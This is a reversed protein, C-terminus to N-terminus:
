FVSYDAGLSIEVDEITIVNIATSGGTACGCFLYMQTTASPLLGTTITGTTSVTPSTQVTWTLSPTTNNWVLTFIAATGATQLAPLGATNTTQTGSGNNTVVTYNTASPAFGILAGHLSSNLANDFQNGLSSGSAFGLYLSYNSNTNTTVKFKATPNNTMTCIQQTTHFGGNNHTGNSTTITMAPRNNIFTSGTTGSTTSLNSLLGIGRTLSSDNAPQFVGWRGGVQSPLGGIPPSELNHIIGGSDLSSIAHSTSDVYIRRTGGAPNAPKAIESLDEYFAGFANNKNNQVVSTPLSYELNHIVGASDLSSLAHSTSDVYLRRTGVPPNVDPQQTETMDQFGASFPGSMLGLTILNDWLDFINTSTTGASASSGAPLQTVPTAGFFALMQSPSTGVTTGENIGLTINLGDSIIFDDELIGQPDPLLILGGQSVLGQNFTQVGGFNNNNNQTAITDDGSLIPLSLNVDDLIQNGIVHYLSDGTSNVIQLQGNAIATKLYKEIYPTGAKSLRVSRASM